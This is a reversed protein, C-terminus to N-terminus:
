QFVIHRFVFQASFKLTLLFPVRVNIATFHDSIGCLMGRLSFRPAFFRAQEVLRKLPLYFFDFGIASFNFRRLTALARQVQPALIM